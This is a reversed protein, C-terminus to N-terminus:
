RYGSGFRKPGRCHRQQSAAYHGARLVDPGRDPMLEIVQTSDAIAGVIDGTMARLSSRLLYGDVFDPKLEIAETVEAAAKTLDKKQLASIARGMHDDVSLQAQCVIVPALLLAFAAFPSLVRRM